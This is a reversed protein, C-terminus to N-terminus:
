AAKKGSLYPAVAKALDGAAIKREGVILSLRRGSVKYIHLTFAGENLVDAAININYKGCALHLIAPFDFGMSSKAPSTTITAGSLDLGALHRRIEATPDTPM